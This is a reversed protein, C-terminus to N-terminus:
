YNVALGIHHHQKREKCPGKEKSKGMERPGMEDLAGKSAQVYEAVDRRKNFGWKREFINQLSNQYKLSQTEYRLTIKLFSQFKFIIGNM